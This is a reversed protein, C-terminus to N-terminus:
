GLQYPTLPGNYKSPTLLMIQAGDTARFMNRDLYPVLEKPIKLFRCLARLKRSVILTSPSFYHRRNGRIRSVKAQKKKEKKEKERNERQGSYEM